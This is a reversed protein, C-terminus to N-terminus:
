DYDGHTIISVYSYLVIFGWTKRKNNDYITVEYCMAKNFISYDHSKKTAFIYAASKLQTCLKALFELAM